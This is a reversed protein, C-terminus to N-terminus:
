VYVYVKSFFVCFLLILYAIRVHQLNLQSEARISYMKVSTNHNYNHIYLYLFICIIKSPQHCLYLCMSSAPIRTMRKRLYQIRLIIRLIRRRKKERQINTNPIEQIDSHKNSIIFPYACINPLRKTEITNNAFDHKVKVTRM